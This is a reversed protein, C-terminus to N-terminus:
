RENFIFIKRTEVTTTGACQLFYIGSHLASINLKAPQQPQLQIDAIVKKGSNNWVSVIAKQFSQITIFDTAPNPMTVFASSSNLNEVASPICNSISISCGDGNLYGKVTNLDSSCFQGNVVQFRIKVLPTDNPITQLCYSTFRVISDNANYNSLWSLTNTLDFISDYVFNQQNYKFSFDLANIVDDSKFRVPFEVYTGNIISADVDFLVSDLNNIISINLPASITQAFLSSSLTFLVIIFFIKKM